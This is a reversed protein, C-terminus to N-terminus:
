ALGQQLVRMNAAIVRKSKAILDFREPEDIWIKILGVLSSELYIAALEIDTNEPLRGQERSLQLAYAIQKQFLRHYRCALETITENGATQECKSFMVNCFKHKSERTALTEFMATLNHQLHTWVDQNDRLTQDNFAAFFDAYQQEFLTEFLDEKNKFHWYLAGRTVGAEQAIAQLSARTVGDRWFVELAADLLHQRTKQAETKTKRM